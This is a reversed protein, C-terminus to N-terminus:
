IYRYLDGLSTAGTQFAPSIQFANNQFADGVLITADTTLIMTGGSDSLITDGQDSTLLVPNSTPNNELFVRNQNNFVPRYRVALWPFSDTIPRTDPMLDM